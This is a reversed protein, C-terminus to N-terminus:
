GQGHCEGLAARALFLPSGPEDLHPPLIRVAAELNTLAERLRANEAELAAIEALAKWHAGVRVWAGDNDPEMGMFIPLADPGTPTVKPHFREVLEARSQKDNPMTM